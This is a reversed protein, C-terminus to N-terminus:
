SLTRCLNLGLACPRKLKPWISCPPTWAGDAVGSPLPPRHTTCLTLWPLGASPHFWTMDSTRRSVSRESSVSPMSGTGAISFIRVSCRRTPSVGSGAFRSTSILPM